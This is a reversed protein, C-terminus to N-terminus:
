PSEENDARTPTVGDVPTPHGINQGAAQGDPSAALLTILTELTAIAEAAEVRVRDLVSPDGMVIIKCDERVGVLRLQTLLDGVVDRVYHRTEEVTRKTRAGSLVNVVRRLNALAEPGQNRVEDRIEGSILQVIDGDQNARLSRLDDLAYRLASNFHRAAPQEVLRPQEPKALREQGARVRKFRAPDLAKLRHAKDIKGKGVRLARALVDRTKRGPRSRGASPTGPKPVGKGTGCRRRNARTEAGRRGGEAMQARMEREIEPRLEEALAARQDPTLHLRMVNEQILYLTPSSLSITVFRPTVNALACARIRNRGNLVRGNLLVIPHLLGHEKINLALNTLDKNDMLPFHQAAPHWCKPKALRRWDPITTSGPSADPSSDPVEALRADATRAPVSENSFSV